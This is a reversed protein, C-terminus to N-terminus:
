RRFFQKGARVIVVAAIACVALSGYLVFQAGLVKDAHLVAGWFAVTVVLVIVTHIALTLYAMVGSKEGEAERIAKAIEKEAAQQWSKYNVRGTMGGDKQIFLTLAEVVQAARKEPTPEGAIPTPTHPLPISPSSRASM